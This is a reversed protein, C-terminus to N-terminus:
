YGMLYYPTTTHASGEGLERRAFESATIDPRETFAKDAEAWSLAISSTTTVPENRRPEGRSAGEGTWTTSRELM